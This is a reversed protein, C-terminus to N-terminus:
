FFFNVIIAQHIEDWYHLAEFDYKIIYVIM